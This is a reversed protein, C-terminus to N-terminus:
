RTPDDRGHGGIWTQPEHFSPVEPSRGCGQTSRSGREGLARAQGVPCAWCWVSDWRWGVGASFMRPFSRCRPKDMCGAAGLPPCAPFKLKESGELRRAGM